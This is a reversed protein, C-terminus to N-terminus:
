VDLRSAGKIESQRYSRGSILTPMALGTFGGTQTAHRAELSEGRLRDLEPLDLSVPRENIAIRQDMEDFIIWIFRQGDARVPLVAAPPKPRFASDPESSLSSSLFDLLLAPFMLTMLLAVHRAPRVVRPNGWMAMVVGVFLLAEISLLAVNSALDVHESQANWYRRVSELPFVLAMLFCGHAFKRWVPGRSRAWRVGLWLVLCLLLGALLTSILLVPSAPGPRLYDLSTEQLIELDYWRRVFCLNGLSFCVLIDKLKERTTPSLSLAM